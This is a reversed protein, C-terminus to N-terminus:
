FTNMIQFESKVSCGKNKPSVVRHMGTGTVSNYSVGAPADNPKLLMLLFLLPKRPM